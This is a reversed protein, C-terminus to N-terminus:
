FDLAGKLRGNHSVMLRSSASKPETRKRAHDGVPIGGFAGNSGIQIGEERAEASSLSVRDSLLSAKEATREVSPRTTPMHLPFNCALPGLTPGRSPIEFCTISFFVLVHSVEGTSREDRRKSEHCPAIDAVVTLILM